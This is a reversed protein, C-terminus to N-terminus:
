RDLKAHRRLFEGDAGATFVARQVAYGQLRDAVRRHITGEPYTGDTDREGARVATLIEIGQDITDVAWVHFRGARTAEILDDGLMLDALNATPVIVGQDGTLGKAQCVKYFGEIKDNVGGIAQVNGHQDVSGTVAISQKLPADALASLLAYLEASSASDGDVGEYSQEFTLTAHLALPWQQAYQASLYGSVILFGKNHIAGGLATEREISEVTGRGLAVTASIRSPGGFRHDGLEIVSLGNLQGVRSGTTEVRITGDTILERLREEALSSRRSKELIAKEVDEFSVLARAGQQAWYSAETVLDDLDRLRTSLKHQSDRWRATEEIVRAVARADFQKLEREDICRRIFGSYAGVSDANWDVEPTFDVRVKFLERFEEELGFLTQYLAPTGVLAAKIHLPIPMPALSSTPLMSQQESLNELRVEQNTLARILAAWAFPNSLVDAADVILFGGNARLLAGAKIQRFDTVMTGLTARYEIRGILNYYTPNTEIEVPAGARSSNDVIVNVRYRSAYDVPAALQMPQASDSDGPQISPRLSALHNPVDEAIRELHAILGPNDKYKDRLGQLLPEIALRVIERDLNSITEAGEGDLQSLRRMTMGVESQVELGRKEVAAKETATLKSIEEQPM